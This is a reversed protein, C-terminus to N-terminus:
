LGRPLFASLMPHSQMQQLVAAVQRMTEHMEAVQQKMVEFEIQRMDAIITESTRTHSNERFEHYASLENEKM